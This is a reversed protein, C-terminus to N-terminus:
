VIGYKKMTADVIRQLAITFASTRMSVNLKNKNEWIDDFADDMIKKLKEFVQKETWIENQMNQVWEFYSVTVGGANCLVDPLVTIGNKELIEDAQPTTPGNALEIINKAKINNANQQTIVNELASPVLVDVSMTLLEENTINQSNNFNLVSGTKEKHLLLDNINLGDKNYVGGKSDSIAVVKCGYDYLLKAMVSGANGFGQIAVSFGNQLNIKQAFKLIVYFGGQATATDRGLSGGKDLPKGTVVGLSKKGVLSSYEDVIWGMTKSNTYVDPAPIDLNPGIVDKFARVYGYTLNELEQLSMNKSDVSVGGKGGGFPINVVACKIAMWFALSQVEDLDTDQHFRIGGKYPGRSNNYQVRYADFLKIKGDDMKVPITALVIREPKELIALVDSNLGIKQSAFHLQQLANKFVNSM